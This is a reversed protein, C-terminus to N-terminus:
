SKYKAILLRLQAEFTPIVKIREQTQELEAKCNNLLLLDDEKERELESIHAEYRECTATLKRLM